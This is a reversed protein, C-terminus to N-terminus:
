SEDEMADTGGAAALVAPARALAEKPVYVNPRRVVDHAARGLEAVDFDPGHVFCPIGAADLLGRALEVETPDSAELLLAYDESPKSV